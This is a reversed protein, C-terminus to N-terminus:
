EFAKISVFNIWNTPMRARDQTRIIIKIYISVVCLFIWLIASVIEDDIIYVLIPWSLEYLYWFDSHLTHPPLNSIPSVNWGCILKTAWRFALTFTNMRTYLEEEDKRRKGKKWEFLFYINARNSHGKYKM